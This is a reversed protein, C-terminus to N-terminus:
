PTDVLGLSSLPRRLPPPSHQGIVPQPGLLPQPAPCWSRSFGGNMSPPFVYQYSAVCPKPAVHLVPRITSPPLLHSYRRTRDPLSCFRQLQHHMKEKNGKLEEFLLISQEVSVGCDRQAPIRVDFGASRTVVRRTPRFAATDSDLSRRAGGGSADDCPLM